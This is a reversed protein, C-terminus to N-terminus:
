LEYGGISIYSTGAANSKLQLTTNIVIPKSLVVISFGTGTASQMFMHKDSGNDGLMTNISANSFIIETIYYKKGVTPTLVTAYTTNLAVGSFTSNYYREIAGIPITPYTGIGGGSITASTSVNIQGAVVAVPVVPTDTDLSDPASFTKLTQRYQDQLDSSFPIKPM